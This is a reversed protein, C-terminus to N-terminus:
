PLRYSAKTGAITVVGQTTLADVLRSVEDETLKNQFLQNITNSLAKLRAPRAKGRRKLDEIIEAIRAAEGTKQATFKAKPSKPIDGLSELRATKIKDSKLHDILVDFGTDKSIIYFSGGPDAAALRGIHYAIHFDLANRGKGSIQILRSGAGIRQLDVVLETPMKAQNAGVFVLVCSQGDGLRSLGEPQVNEYDILVYRKAM